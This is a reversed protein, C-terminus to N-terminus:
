SIMWNLTIVAESNIPKGLVVELEKKLESLKCAIDSLESLKICDVSVDIRGFDHSDCERNLAAFYSPGDSTMDGYMLIGGHKLKENIAEVFDYSDHFKKKGLSFTETAGKVCVEEDALRNGTKPDFRAEKRFTAETRTALCDIDLPFGIDNSFQYDISM